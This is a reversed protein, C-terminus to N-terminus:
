QEPARDEFERLASESTMQSGLRFEGAKVISLVPAPAGMRSATMQISARQYPYVTFFAVREAFELQVEDTVDFPEDAEYQAQFDAVFEDGHRDDFIMRFRFAIGRRDTRTAVNLVNRIRPDADDAEATEDIRRGREEWLYVDALSVVDVLDHIDDIM